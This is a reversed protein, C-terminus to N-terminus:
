EQIREELFMRWERELGPFDEGYVEKAMAPDSAYLRSFRDLGRTEVLYKCFSAQALYGLRPDGQERHIEADLVPWIPEGKETRLQQYAAHTEVGFNPWVHPGEGTLKEEVYVAFGEDFLRNGSSLAVDGREREHESLWSLGMLNHTLEHVLSFGYDLKAWKTPVLIFAGAGPDSAYPSDHCGAIDITLKLGDAFSRDLYRRTKEYWHELTEGLRAADGFVGRPLLRGPLARNGPSRRRTGAEM